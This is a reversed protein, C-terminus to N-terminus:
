LFISHVKIKTKGINIFPEISRLINASIIHNYGLEISSIQM